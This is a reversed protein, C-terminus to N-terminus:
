EGKEYFFSSPICFYLFFFNEKVKFCHTCSTMLIIKKTHFYKLDNLKCYRKIGRVHSESNAVNILDKEYEKKSRPAFKNENVYEQM